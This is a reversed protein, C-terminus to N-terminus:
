KLRENKHPVSILARSSKQIPRIGGNKFPTPKSEEDSEKIERIGSKTIKPETRWVFGIDIGNVEKAETRQGV